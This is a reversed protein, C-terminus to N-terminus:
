LSPETTRLPAACWPPTARFRQSRQAARSIELAAAGQLGEFAVSGQDRGYRHRRVTSAGDGAGSVVGELDPLDESENDGRGVRLKVSKSPTQFARERRSLTPSRATFNISLSSGVIGGGSLGAYFIAGMPPPRQKGQKLEALFGSPRSKLRARLRNREVQRYARGICPFIVTKPAASSLNLSKFTLM